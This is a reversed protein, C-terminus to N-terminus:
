ARPGGNTYFRAGLTIQDLYLTSPGRDRQGAAKGNVYLRTGGAGVTSTVCLRQVTGFEAAGTLLNAAGVFGAGEVNLYQFRASAGPGLDLTLGSVYDNKGTQNFALLGRFSGPNDFPAAVVIVTVNKLSRDLGALALHQREGDFRLATHGDATHFVPRAAADKQILHLAKGSADYCVAVPDGPILPPQKLAQRAANQRAADLWLELGATVKLNPDAWKEAAPAAATALTLLLGVALAGHGTSRRM